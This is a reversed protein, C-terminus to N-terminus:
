QGGEKYKEFQELCLEFDAKLDSSSRDTTANITCNSQEGDVIFVAKGSPLAVVEGGAALHLLLFLATYFLCAGLVLKGIDKLSNIM